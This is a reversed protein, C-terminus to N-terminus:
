GFFASFISSGIASGRDTGVLGAMGLLVLGLIPIGVMALVSGWKARRAQVVVVIFLVILAVAAIKKLDATVGDLNLVGAAPVAITTLATLM